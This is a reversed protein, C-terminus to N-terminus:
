FNLFYRFAKGRLTIQLQPSYSFQRGSQPQPDPSWNTNTTNQAVFFSQRLITLFAHGCPKNRIKFGKLPKNQSFKGALDGKMYYAKHM